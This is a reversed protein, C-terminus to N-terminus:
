IEAEEIQKKLASIKKTVAGTAKLGNAKEYLAIAEEPKNAELGKAENILGQRDNGLVEQAAEGDTNDLIKYKHAEKNAVIKDWAEKTLPYEAGTKINKVRM